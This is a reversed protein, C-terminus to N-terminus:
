LLSQPSTFYPQLTSTPKSVTKTNDTLIKLKSM